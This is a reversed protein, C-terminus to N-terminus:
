RKIYRIPDEVWASYVYNNNKIRTKQSFCLVLLGYM